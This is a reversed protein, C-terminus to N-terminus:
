YFKKIFNLLFKKPFYVFRFYSKESLYIMLYMFIKNLIYCFLGQFSFNDIPTKQKNCFNTQNRYQWYIDKKPHDCFYKWPKEWAFHLIIPYNKADFFDKECYWLNNYSNTYFIWPLCNYKPALSLWSNEWIVNFAQQDSDFLNKSNLIIYEKIKEFFNDQRIKNLNLFLVWSNFFKSKESLWLRDKYYARLTIESIAWFYYEDINYSFISSIDGTVVVDSDIYLMRSIEPFKKAIELRYYTALWIISPFNQYQNVDFSVFLLEFNSFKKLSTIIKEKNKNSIGGDLVFINAFFNKDLNQLLSFIAVCLHPAYGDDSAFCIHIHNKYKNKWM